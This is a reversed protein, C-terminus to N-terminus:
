TPSEEDKRAAEVFAVIQGTLSGEGDLKRLMLWRYLDPPLYVTLAHM